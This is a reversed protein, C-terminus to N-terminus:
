QCKVGRFFRGYLGQLYRNIEEFCLAGTFRILIGGLVSKDFEKRCKIGYIIM